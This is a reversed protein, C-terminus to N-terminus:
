ESAFEKAVEASLGCLHTAPANAPRPSVTPCPGAFRPAWQLSGAVGVPTSLRDQV